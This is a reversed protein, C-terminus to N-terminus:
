GHAARFPVMRGAEEDWLQCSLTRLCGALTLTVAPRLAPERRHCEALRYNPIRPALHHLHHYGIHATFWELLPPLQLHSSGRLAADFWSWQGGQAWYAREFQHQVYFLGLGIFSAIWAVPLMVMLLERWGVLAAAGGYVGLLAANTLPVSRWAPQPAPRTRIRNYLTFKFFPLLGFLVLPERQLRYALRALPAAARYERVTWTDFDGTGRRDLRGSSVHHVGHIHRWYHFAEFVLLSLALGAVTNARRSRFLSGHGCDHFLVFCRALLGAAPVALALTLLYPGQLSWLMLGLLALYPPVTSALQLAARRDDSRLYPRVLPRWDPEAQPCQMPAWQGPRIPLGTSPVSRIAVRGPAAM